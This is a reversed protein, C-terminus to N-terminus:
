DEAAMLSDNSSNLRPKAAGFWWALCVALCVLFGLWRVYGTGFVVTGNFIIFILVANWVVVILTPRRRYADLGRWWWAVDLIWAALVLYNIYLGGGWNMGFMEATQRATDHYAATQSWGYFHHYAFAVHAILAACGITWAARALSDWKTRQRSLAFTVAGVTYAAISIWITARTLIEGSM